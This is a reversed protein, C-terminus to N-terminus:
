LPVVRARGGREAKLANRTDVILSAWDGIQNWDYASHDACVVVCDAAGVTAATLAASTLTLHDNVVLRPVHPDHYQVLAGKAALLEIIELAPSERTDAVDRKYAVGLVLISAGNVAQRRENLADTVKGVVFSPMRGNVEGALEIFRATQNLTKLKWSLYYPDVPICHGGLGPGPYFPMFGFPKTAAADIVEWVDIGLADCMVAMENVLAINVARFTNELLKAMEATRTSSVAVVQEVVGGYLAAAMARCAPTVGGVIKPTNRAAFHRNGPDIREPAFALFFDVGVRLGGASLKPLIVEETTGPYTTSELVILQGPRLQRAIDDTAAVIASIDPAQAKSLPTPVCITIADCDRLAAPDATASLRGALAALRETAIDDIYSRGANIAAVRAASLDYGLTPFGAEAFAVALPLGAYGLGVIGVTATRAEIREM